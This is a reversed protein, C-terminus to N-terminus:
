EFKTKSGNKNGYNGVADTLPALIYAKNPWM